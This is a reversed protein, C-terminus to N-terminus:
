ATAELFCPPAVMRFLRYSVLGSRVVPILFSLTVVEEILRTDSLLCAAFGSVDHTTALSKSDLGARKALQSHSVANMNRTLCKRSQDPYFILRRCCPSRSRGRGTGGGPFAPAPPM